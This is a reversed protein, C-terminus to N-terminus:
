EKGCFSLRAEGGTAGVVVTLRGRAPAFDSIQWDAAGAASGAAAAVGNSVSTGAGVTAVFATTPDQDVWEGAVSSYDPVDQSAHTSTEIKASTIILAADFTLHVDVLTAGGVPLIYYYTYQRNVAFSM